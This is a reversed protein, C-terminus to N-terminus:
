RPQFSMSEAVMKSIAEWAPRNTRSAAFWRTAERGLGEMLRVAADKNDFAILERFVGGSTPSINYGIGGTAKNPLLMMTSLVVESKPEENTRMVKGIEKAAVIFLPHIPRTVVVIGGKIEVVAVNCCASGKVPLGWMERLVCGNKLATKGFPYLRCKEVYRLREPYSGLVKKLSSKDVSSGGGAIGSLMNFMRLYESTFESVLPPLTIIENDSFM